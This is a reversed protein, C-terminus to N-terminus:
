FATSLEVNFAYEVIHVNDAHVMTLASFSLEYDNSFAWDIGAGANIYNHKVMRDHQYWYPTNRPTPFEDPFDRGNGEKVMLFVRGSLDPSFFYGVTGDIRWHDINTGLTKEVFVRSVDLSYYFDSLVPLWTFSAGVDFKWLNQGVAAHAFFPYDTSPVGLAVFPEIVVPRTKWLYRLELHLDQFSTHYQGDDIFEADQPPIIASPNHAGPGEYRKRILPLGASLGWRGNFQWHLEFNLSHTDTTGIPLEGITSEFGDVHIFQYGVSFYLHSDSQEQAVATGSLGLLVGGLLLLKGTRGSPLARRDASRSHALPRM